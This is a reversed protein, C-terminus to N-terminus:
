FFFPYFNIFFVENWSLMHGQIPNWEGLQPIDGLIMLFEGYNCHYKIQFNIQFKYM